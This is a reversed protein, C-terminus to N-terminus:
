RHERFERRLSISAVREMLGGNRYHTPFQARTETKAKVQEYEVELGDLWKNVKAVGEKRRWDAEERQAELERQEEDAQRQTEEWWESDTEEEEEEEEVEAEEEEEGLSSGEALLEVEELSDRQELPAEVRPDGVEGEVATTDHEDASVWGEDERDLLKKKVSPEGYGDDLTKMLVSGDIIKSLAMRQRREPREHELGGGRKPPYGLDGQCYHSRQRPRRAERRMELRRATAETSASYKGIPEPESVHAKLEAKLENVAKSALHRLNKRLSPMIYSVRPHPKHHEHLITSSKTQKTPFIPLQTSIANQLNTSLAITYFLM